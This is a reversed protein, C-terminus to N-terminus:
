CGAGFAIHTAGMLRNVTAIAEMNLYGACYGINKLCVERSQDRNWGASNNEAMYDVYQNLFREADEEHEILAAISDVIQRVNGFEYNHNSM